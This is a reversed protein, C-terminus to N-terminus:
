TSVWFTPNRFWHCVCRDPEFGLDAYSPPAPGFTLNRVQLLFLSCAEIRVKYLSKVVLKSFWTAKRCEQDSCWQVIPYIGQRWPFFRIPAFISWQTLYAVIASIQWHPKQLVRDSTKTNTMLKIVSHYSHCKRGVSCCWAWWNSGRWVRRRPAPITDFECFLKEHVVRGFFLLFIPVCFLHTLSTFFMKSIAMVIQRFIGKMSVAAIAQWM